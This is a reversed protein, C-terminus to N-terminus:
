GAFAAAGAFFLITTILVSTRVARRYRPRYTEEYAARYAQRYVPHNAEEVTRPVERPGGSSLQASVLSAVGGAFPTLFFTAAASGWRAGSVSATRGDHSGAETGAAVLRLSDPSSREQAETYAPLALLLALALMRSDIRM